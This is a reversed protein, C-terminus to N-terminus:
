SVLVRPVSSKRARPKRRTSWLAKDGLPSGRLDDRCRGVTKRRDLGRGLCAQRRAKRSRDVRACSGRRRRGPPLRRRTPSGKSDWTARAKEVRIVSALSRQRGRDGGLASGARRRDARGIALIAEVTRGDLLAAEGIRPAKWRCTCGRPRKRSRPNTPARWRDRRKAASSGAEPAREGGRASERRPALGMSTIWPEECTPSRPWAGGTSKQLRQSGRARGRGDSGRLVGGETARPHLQERASRRASGHPFARRGALQPHSVNADRMGQPVRLACAALRSTVPWPGRDSAAHGRPAAEEV